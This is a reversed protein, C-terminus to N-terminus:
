SPAPFTVILFCSFLIFLCSAVLCCQQPLFLAKSRPLAVHQLLIKKGEAQSFPLCFLWLTLPQFCWGEKGKHRGWGLTHTVLPSCLGGLLAGYPHRPDRERERAPPRQVPEECHSVVRELLVVSSMNQLMKKGLSMREKKNISQIYKIKEGECSLWVHSTLLKNDFSFCSPCLPAGCVPFINPKSSFNHPRIRQCLYAWYKLIMAKQLWVLCSASNIIVCAMIKRSGSTFQWKSAKRFAALISGFCIKKAQLSFVVFLFLCSGLQSKNLILRIQVQYSSWLLTMDSGIGGREIGEGEVRLCPYRLRESWSRSMSSRWGASCWCPSTAHLPPLTKSINSLWRSTTVVRWRPSPHVPHDGSTGELRHNQRLPTIAGPSRNFSKGTCAHQIAYLVRHPSSPLFLCFHLSYKVAASNIIAEWVYKLTHLLFSKGTM